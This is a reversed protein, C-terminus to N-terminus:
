SLVGKKRMYSVLDEVIYEKSFTHLVDYCPVIYDDIIPQLIVSSALDLVVSLIVFVVVIGLLFKFKNLYEFLRKLTKKSDKAKDLNVTMPGRGGRPGKPGRGGAAM